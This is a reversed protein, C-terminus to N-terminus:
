YQSRYNTDLRTANNKNYVKRINIRCLLTVITYYLLENPEIRM